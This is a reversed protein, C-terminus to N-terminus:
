ISKDDYVRNLQIQLKAGKRPLMVTSSLLLLPAKPNMLNCVVRPRMVENRADGTVIKLIQGKRRHGLENRM